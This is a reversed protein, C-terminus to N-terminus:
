RLRPRLWSRLRIGSTVFSASCNHDFCIVVCVGYAAMVRAARFSFVNFLGDRLAKLDESEGIVSGLGVGVTEYRPHAHGHVLKFAINVSEESQALFVLVPDPEQDTKLDLVREFVELGEHLLEAVVRDIVDDLSLMIHRIFYVSMIDSKLEVLFFLQLSINLVRDLAHLCSKEGIEGVRIQGIIDTIVIGVPLM